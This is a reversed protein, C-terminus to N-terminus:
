DHVVKEIDGNMANIHVEKKQGEETMLEVEYILNGDESELEMELIRSNPFAILVLVTAEQRDIKPQRGEEALVFNFIGLWMLWLMVVIALVITGKRM